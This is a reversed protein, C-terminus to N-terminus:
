RISTVAEISRADNPCLRHPARLGAPLKPPRGPRICAADLQVQSISGPGARDSLNAGSLDTGSMNARAFTTARLDAGALSARQLNAGSFEAGVLSSGQMQAGVLWANRFVIGYRGPLVTARSGTGGAPADSVTVPPSATLRTPVNLRSMSASALQAGTFDANELQSGDLLVGNMKARSFDAGPAVIGSLRAGDGLHVGTLKAGRISTHETVLLELADQVGPAQPSALRGLAQSHAATKALDSGNGQTYRLGYGAIAMSGCALVWGFMQGISALFKGSSSLMRTVAHRPQPVPAATPTSSAMPIAPIAAAPTPPQAPPPPTPMPATLNTGSM